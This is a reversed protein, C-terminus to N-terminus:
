PSCTAAPPTASKGRRERPLPSTPMARHLRHDSQRAPAHAEIKNLVVVGRVAGNEVVVDEAFTYLLLDVGARRVLDVVALKM